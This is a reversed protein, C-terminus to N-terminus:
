GHDLGDLDIARAVRRADANGDPVEEDGHLGAAKRGILGQGQIQCVLTVVEDGQDVEAEQGADLGLDDDLRRGVAPQPGVDNLIARGPHVPIGREQPSPAVQLDMAAPDHGVPGEDPVVVLVHQELVADGIPSSDQSLGGIALNGDSVDNAGRQVDVDVTIDAIGGTPDIAGIQGLIAVGQIDVMGAKTLDGGVLRDLDDVAVAWAGPDMADLLVDLSSLKNVIQGGAEVVLLDAAQDVIHVEAQLMQVVRPQGDNLTTEVTAQDQIGVKLIKLVLGGIEDEDLTSLGMVDADVPALEGVGVVTNLNLAFVAGDIQGGRGVLLDDCGLHQKRLDKIAPEDDAAIASRHSVHLPDRSVVALDEM